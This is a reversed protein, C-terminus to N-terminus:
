LPDCNFPDGRISLQRWSDPVMNPDGAFFFPDVAIDITEGNGDFFEVVELNEAPYEWSWNFGTTYNVDGGKIMFTDQMKVLVTSGDFYYTSDNQYVFTYTTGFNDTATGRVLDTVVIRTTGDPMEKLSAQKVRDSSFDDPSIVVGEPVESCFSELSFLWPITANNLHVSFHTASGALAPQSQGALAFVLMVAVFIIRIARM